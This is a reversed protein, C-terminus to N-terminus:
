MNTKIPLFHKVWYKKGKIKKLRVKFFRNQEWWSVFCKKFIKKKICAKTCESYKKGFIQKIWYKKGEIKKLRVKSFRNKKRWSVFCKKFMKKKICAKKCEYYKKGFM